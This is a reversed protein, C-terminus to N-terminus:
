FLIAAPGVVMPLFMLTPDPLPADIDYGVLLWVMPAIALYCLAAFAVHFRRAEHRHPANSWRLIAELGLTHITSAVAALMGVTIMFATHNQIASFSWPLGLVVWGGVLAVGFLPLTTWPLIQYGFLVGVSAVVLLAVVLLAMLPTKGVRRDREIEQLTRTRAQVLTTLDADQPVQTAESVDNGVTEGNWDTTTWDKFTRALWMREYDTRHATWEQQRVRLYDAGFVDPDLMQVWPRESLDRPYEIGLLLSLTPALAASSGLELTGSQPKIGYGAMILPVQIVEPEQGGHGGRRHHGHDSTIIVVDRSLDLTSLLAAVRADLSRAAQNYRKGVGHAHGATDIDVFHLVTLAGRENLIDLAARDVERAITTPPVWWWRVFQDKFLEPWYPHNASGVIHLGASRARAFVTDTPIPATTANTRVGSRWPETGSGLAAYSPKSFSLDPAKVVGDVGRHRLTNLFALSRSTDLRLGDLVVLVVRGPRTKPQATPETVPRANPGLMAEPQQRNLAAPYSLLAAGVLAAVALLLLGPLLRVFPTM